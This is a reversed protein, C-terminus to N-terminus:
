GSKTLATIADIGADALVHLQDNLREAAFDPTWDTEGLLDSVVFASAASVGRVTAVAFVAAAEMEVTLVGAARYHRVEDITERYPTDITWTAGRRFGPRAARSPRPSRRPSTRRRRPKRMRPCTTIRSAKM